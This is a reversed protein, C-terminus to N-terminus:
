PAAEATGTRPPEEVRANAKAAAVVAELRAPNVVTIMRLWTRARGRLEIKTRAIAPGLGLARVEPRKALRAIARGVAGELRKGANPDGEDFADLEVILAADDALDGWASISRPAPELGVAGALAIRADTSLRATVRVVAGTAAAPMAHDRLRMLEEDDAASEGEGVTQLKEIWPPPALAVVGDALKVGNPVEVGPGPAVLTITTADPMGVDYGALVIWAAGALPPREIPLAGGADLGGADLGGLWGDVVPGVLPNERARALDLEVIVSPNAPLLALAAQAGTAVRPEPAPPKTAGARGGRGGCAAAAVALVLGARMVGARM